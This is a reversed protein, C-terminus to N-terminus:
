SDEWRWLEFADVKPEAKFIYVPVLFSQLLLYIIKVFDSSWKKPILYPQLWLRLIPVVPFKQSSLTKTGKDKFNKEIHYKIKANWVKFFFFFWKLFSFNQFNVEKTAFIFAKLDSLNLWYGMKEPCELLASSLWCLRKELHKPLPIYVNQLSLSGTKAKDAKWVLKCIPRGRKGGEADRWHAWLWLGGRAWQASTYVM